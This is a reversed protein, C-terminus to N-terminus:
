PPYVDSGVLSAPRDAASLQEHRLQRGLSITLPLATGGILALAVFAAAPSAQLVQVILAVIIGGANGALWLVATAAGGAAGARREALELVVPLAPLLLLGLVALTVGGAVVGPVAALLLCSVVLAMASGALLVAQRDRSAAAPPLLACGAVGAVVMITLLTDTTSSSVGAPKLLTELWTSLAVFAGFGVFVLGTLNRLVRDSWLERVASSTVEAGTAVLAAPAAGGTSAALVVAAVVSYVAGIVLISHLGSAGFVAGLVFAAVFGVFTGASGIAIGVPRHASSLYRTAVGTIANLVAPQGLAILVQGALIVSYRQDVSRLVAGVATLAAGALLTPRFWRDLAKGIPVALVVYLLPFIESLWGIASQSVGLSKSVGTTVPTFNLWLMQNASAVLVFGFVAGWRSTAPERGNGM